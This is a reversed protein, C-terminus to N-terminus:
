VKIEKEVISVSVVVDYGDYKIVRTDDDLDECDIFWKKGLVIGYSIKNLSSMLQRTQNIAKKTEDVLYQEIDVMDVLEVLDCEINNSHKTILHDAINLKKGTALKKETAPIAPLSSLGKIKVELERSMYFDVTPLSRVKPSFGYDRIGVTSLWKAASDGYLSAFGDTTNKGFNLETYYKLVKQKAKQDQLELHLRAFDELNVDVVMNRNILPLTTLDIVIRNKHKPHTTYKLGENRAYDMFEDLTDQDLVVPLSKMNIIGDRVLTYNRYQITSISVEGEAEVNFEHEEVLDTPIGVTGSQVTQISINPRGSNMVINEISVLGSVDTPVFKPTFEDGYEDVAIVQETAAGIRKYQFSKHNTQLYNDGKTLLNCLDIITFAEDDPVLNYNIGDLYRLDEDFVCDSVVHTYTTLEQKTFCNNYLEILRVDGLLKNIEWIKDSDGRVSAIYMCLYLEDDSMLNSIAFNEFEYVESVWVPLKVVGKIPLLVVVTQSEKNLYVVSQVGDEVEYITQTVSGGNIAHEFETVYYEYDQVFVHQGGSLESMKILMDRDAYWGYEMFTVNDFVPQIKECQAFVDSRNSQNDYGDSMFILSSAHRNHRGAVEAALELPEKFGTLGIVQLYQDIAGQAHKLQVLNSVPLAEFVVGCQNRGSFYLVSVIDGDNVVTALNNKLYTRMQPLDYYMSGSVDVAFIHHTKTTQQADVQPEWKKFKM